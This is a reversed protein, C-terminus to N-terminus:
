KTIKRKNCKNGWRYMEKYKLKQLNPGGGGYLQRRVYLIQALLKICFLRCWVGKRNKRIKRLNRYELLKLRPFMWRKDRHTGSQRFCVIMKSVITEFNDDCFTTKLTKWFLIYNNLSWVHLKNIFIAGIQSIQDETQSKNVPFHCWFHVVM